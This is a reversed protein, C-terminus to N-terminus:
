NNKRFRMFFDWIHDIPTLQKLDTLEGADLYVLDCVACFDLCIHVQQEDPLRVMPKKCSACSVPNILNNESGISVSGTDVVTDAMWEARLNQLTAWGLLLGKCGVCKFYDIDTGYRHAKMVSQCKPCEFSDYKRM